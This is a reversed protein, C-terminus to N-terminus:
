NWTFQNGFYIESLNNRIENTVMDGVSLHPPAAAGARGTVCLEPVLFM